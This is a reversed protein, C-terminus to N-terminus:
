VNLTNRVRAACRSMSMTTILRSAIRPATSAPSTKPQMTWYGSALPSTSSKVPNTASMASRSTRVTNAASKIASNTNFLGPAM